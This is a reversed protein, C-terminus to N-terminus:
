KRSRVEWVRASRVPSVMLAEMRDAVQRVQGKDVTGLQVQTSQTKSLKM